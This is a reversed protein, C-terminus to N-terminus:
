VFTFLSILRPTKHKSVSDIVENVYSKFQTIDSNAQKKRKIVLSQYDSIPISEHPIIGDGCTVIGYRL